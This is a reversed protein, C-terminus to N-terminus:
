NLLTYLSNYEYIFALMSCKILVMLNKDGHRSYPAHIITPCPDHQAKNKYTSKNKPLQYQLQPKNPPIKKLCFVLSLDKVNQCDSGKANKRKHLILQVYKFGANSHKLLSKLKQSYFNAIKLNWLCNYVM